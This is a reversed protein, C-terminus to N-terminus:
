LEGRARAQAIIGRIELLRPRATYNELRDCVAAIRELTSPEPAYGYCEPRQDNTQAPAPEPNFLREDSIAQTWMEHTIPPTVQAQATQARQNSVDEALAKCHSESQALDRQTRALEHPDESAHYACHEEWQKALRATEAREATISEQHAKDSEEIDSCLRILNINRDQLERVKAELEAIRSNSEILKARMSVILRTRLQAAKERAEENTM